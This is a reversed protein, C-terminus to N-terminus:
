FAVGHAINADIAKDFEIRSSERFRKRRARKRHIRNNKQYSRFTRLPRRM